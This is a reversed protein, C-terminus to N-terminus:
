LGFKTNPEAVDWYVCRFDHLLSWSLVFNKWRRHRSIFAAVVFANDYWSQVQSLTFEFHWPWWLENYGNCLLWKKAYLVPSGVVSINMNPLIKTGIDLLRAQRRIDDDLDSRLCRVDAIGIDNHTEWDSVYGYISCQALTGARNLDAVDYGPGLIEIIFSNSANVALFNVAMRNTFRNTPELIIVARKDRLLSAVVQITTNLPLSNGGRYYQSVEKGGDSRVLVYDLKHLVMFEEIIVEAAAMSLCPHLFAADLTPMQLHRLLCLTNWKPYATSQAEHELVSSPLKSLIM